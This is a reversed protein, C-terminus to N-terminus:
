MVICFLAVKQQEYCQPLSPLQYGFCVSLEFVLHAVLFIIVNKFDTYFISEPASKAIV